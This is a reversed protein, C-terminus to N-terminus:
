ICTTVNQQEKMTENLKDYYKQNVSDILILGVCLYYLTHKKVGKSQMMIM